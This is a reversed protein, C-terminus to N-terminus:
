LKTLLESRRLSQASFWLLLGDLLWVALGLLAVFIVHLYFLGTVQGILLMVVPLVVLSGLQYAEQFTNVRASALVTVGLGLGAVAPGVWFALLLWMPNPFFFGGMVGWGALNVVLGYCVFSGIGVMVGPLWAALLKAIMLEADSTPSYLLVELTKREKEGAFSDAALVSSVMMPIILYLPAFLYLLLLVTLAQSPDYHALEGRLGPPMQELLENLEQIENAPLPGDFGAIARPVLTVVLPLLGVLILPVIVMPLVVAKSKLAVRLDKRIIARIARWNM